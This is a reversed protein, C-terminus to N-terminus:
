VAFHPELFPILPNWAGHDSATGHILLLPEGYGSHWCAIPTGDKSTIHKM